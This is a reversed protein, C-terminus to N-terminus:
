GRYYVSYIKSSKVTAMVGFSQFGLPLTKHMTDYNVKSTKAGLEICGLGTIKHDELFGFTHLSCWVLCGFGILSFLCGLLDIKEEKM